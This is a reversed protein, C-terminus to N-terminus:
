RKSLQAVLQRFPDANRLPALDPSTELSRADQYGRAIAQRLADIAKEACDNQATEPPSTTTGQYHSNSTSPICLAYACAVTYLIAPNRPARKQLDQAAERAKAYQGCRARALMLETQRQFNKPDAKELAERLQLCATFHRDAQDRHGLAVDATGLRYHSHALYWQYEADKVDKQHLKLYIEYSKGYDALAGAANGQQLELDGMLDHIGGLGRKASDNLPEDAVMQERLKLCDSYSQRAGAIDGLHSNAKGLLYNSDALLTKALKIKPDIQLAVKAEALADRAFERARIPEGMDMALSALKDFSVVVGVRRLAPKIEPTHVTKVLGQRLELSRRFFRLSAESDGALEGVMSAMKDYTVGLNWPIWDNEPEAKALKEFIEASRNYLQTTKETQGLQYYVDGIRQYAVGTTRSVRGSTEESKQVKELGAMAMDVLAMRLPALGAKDRLEEEM